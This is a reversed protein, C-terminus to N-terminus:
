WCGGWTQRGSCVGSGTGAEGSLYQAPTAPLLRRCPIGGCHVTQLPAYVSHEALPKEAARGWRLSSPRRLPQSHAAKRHTQQRQLLNQALWKCAPQWRQSCWHPALVAASAALRRRCRADTHHDKTLPCGLSFPVLTIFGTAAAARWDVSAQSACSRQTSEGGVRGEEVLVCPEEAPAAGLPQRLAAWARQMSDCLFQSGPCGGTVDIHSDLLHM